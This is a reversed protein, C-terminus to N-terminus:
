NQKLKDVLSMLIYNFLWIPDWNIFKVSFSIMRRSATNYNNLIDIPIVRLYWMSLDFLVFCPFMLLFLVM